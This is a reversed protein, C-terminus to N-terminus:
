VFYQSVDLSVAHIVGQSDDTNNAGYLITLYSKGLITLQQLAFLKEATSHRYADVALLNQRRRLRIILDRYEKDLPSSQQIARRITRPDAKVLYTNDTLKLNVTRPLLPLPATNGPPWPVYAATPNM